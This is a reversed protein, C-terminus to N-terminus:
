LGPTRAVVAAGEYTGYAFRSSDPSWAVPSTVAVTHVHFDNRLAGDALRWFRITGVQQWLGDSDVYPLYGTTALRAGDPTFRLAAVGENAVAGPFQM